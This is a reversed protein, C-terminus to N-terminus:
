IKLESHPCRCSDPWAFSEIAELSDVGSLPHETMDFYHGGDVPMRWTIGWEDVMRYYEGDRVAPRALGDKAPPDPDVCMVDVALRQAVDDDIRAVQQIEDVLKEERRPLGLYERLRRYAHRNMGTLVSGGIDFPVRDPERHELAAAVREYSTM